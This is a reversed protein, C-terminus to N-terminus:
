IQQRPKHAELLGWRVLPERVHPFSQWTEDQGPDKVHLLDLGSHTDVALRLAHLFATASAHSFDTSHAIRALM